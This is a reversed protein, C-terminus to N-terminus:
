LLNCRFDISNHDISPPTLSILLCVIESSLVEDRTIHGGAFCSIFIAFSIFLTEM